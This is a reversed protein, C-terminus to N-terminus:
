KIVVEVEVIDYTNRPNLKRMREAHNEAEVRKTWVAILGERICTIFGGDHAVAFLPEGPRWAQIKLKSM